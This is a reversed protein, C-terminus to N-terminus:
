HVILKGNADEALLRYNCEPRSILPGIRLLWNFIIRFCAPINNQSGVAFARILRLMRQYLWLNAMQFEFKRHDECFSGLLIQHDRSDLMEIFRARHLM